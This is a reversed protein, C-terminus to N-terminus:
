GKQQVVHTLEHALLNKGTDTDPNYKGENFYIDYGHTFAQARISECMEVARLGTHIVVGSFDVNFQAEMETRIDNPLQFGKGKTEKIMQELASGAEKKKQGEKNVDKTGKNQIQLKAAPEEEEMKQLKAKPEEKEVMRQLKAAPEEEEMKQLKAKPEEKEGMRQLKAAPEEEEMKQLKAKPEEQEGMRQLKAAPEEEEMKQLKAKPEEKEGMRQLKAAPEEKEAMRNVIEKKQLGTSKQNKVGHVVNNAVADAEKEQPDNAPSIELKSQFFGREEKTQVKTDNAKSFFAPQQDQQEKSKPNRHRRSRPTSKKMILNM